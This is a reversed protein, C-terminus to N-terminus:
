NRSPVACRNSLEVFKQMQELLHDPPPTLPRKRESTAIRRELGLREHNPVEEIQPVGLHQLALNIASRSDQLVTSFPIVKVNRLFISHWRALHHEFRGADMQHAIEHPYLRCFDRWDGEFGFDIMRHHIASWLRSREDRHGIIIRTEPFLAEIIEISRDPLCIYSPSKECNIANQKEHGRWLTSQFYLSLINLFKGNITDLLFNPEGRAVRINPHKGLVGRLWTTATRPPGIILANPFCLRNALLEDHFLKGFYSRIERAEAIAEKWLSAQILTDITNINNIIGNM